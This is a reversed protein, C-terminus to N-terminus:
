SRMGTVNLLRQLDTLTKAHSNSNPASAGNESKTYCRTEHFDTNCYFELFTKELFIPLTHLRTKSMEDSLTLKKQEKLELSRIIIRIIFVISLRIFLIRM